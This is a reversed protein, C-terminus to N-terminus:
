RPPPPQGNVCLPLDASARIQCNIESTRFFVLWVAVFVAGWFFVFGGGRIFWDDSGICMAGGGILALLLLAAILIGGAVDLMM